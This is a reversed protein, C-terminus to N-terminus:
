GRESSIFRRFLKHAPHAFKALATFIWWRIQAGFHTLEVLAARDRTRTATTALTPAPSWRAGTHALAGPWGRSHNIDKPGVASRVHRNKLLDSDFGAYTVACEGFHSLAQVLAVHNDGTDLLRCDLLGRRRWPLTRKAATTSEPTAHSRFFPNALAHGTVEFGLTPLRRPRHAPRHGAAVKALTLTSLQFKLTQFM